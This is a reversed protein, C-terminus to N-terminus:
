KKTAIKGYTRSFISFKELELKPSAWGLDDISPFSSARPNQSQYTVGVLSAKPAVNTESVESYRKILM